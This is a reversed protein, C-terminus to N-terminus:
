QSFTGILKGEALIHGRMVEELTRKTMGPVVELIKDLAYLKFVYRHQGGPPCPGRYTASGYDNKGGVAKIEEIKFDEKLQTVSAPLNYLVWHVWVGMPADPDDMIIAFSKTGKPANSWTLPPSVNKGACTYNAPIAGGQTFVSSTVNLQGQGYTTIVTTMLFISALIKKIQKMLHKKKEM